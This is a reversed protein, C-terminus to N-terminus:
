IHKPVSIRFICGKKPLNQVELKGNNLQIAKQAITLGLGLGKKNENQQEFPKFLNVKEDTLGGCEDEVEIIIQDGREHSRVQIKGGVRSYKLANQVLNSLASYLFQHDIELTLKPDVEIALIQGRTKADMEASMLIQNVIQILSVTEPHPKPDVRLRVEAMSQDILTQMRDLGDKLIRGTNGAFGVTGKKIMSISFNVTMLSNRLEHALFGLHQVERNETESNKHRQFETVAGAIAVDLCRNLDHFEKATINMKEKTALETISQCMSGYAHVAYSLTYGLRMLEAGHVGATRALEAENPRGVARTMAQEDNEAAAKVLESTKPEAHKNATEELILIQKLQDFFLPLGNKLLESSPRLGALDQAKKETMSLIEARHTELFDFLM